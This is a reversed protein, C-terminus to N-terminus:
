SGAGAIGSSAPVQDAARRIDATVIREASSLAHVARKAQERAEELRGEYATAAPSRWGAPQARAIRGVIAEAMSDHIRGVAERQARLEAVAQRADDNEEAM